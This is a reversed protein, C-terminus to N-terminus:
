SPARRPADARRKRLALVLRGVVEGDVRAALDRGDAVAVERQVLRDGNQKVEIPLIGLWREEPPRGLLGPLDQALHEIEDIVELGLEIPHGNRNVLLEALERTRGLALDIALDVALGVGDLDRGRLEVLLEGGQLRRQGM